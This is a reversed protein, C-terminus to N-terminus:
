IKSTIQMKTTQKWLNLNTTLHNKDSYNLNEKIICNVKNDRYRTQRYEIM